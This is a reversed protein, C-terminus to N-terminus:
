RVPRFTALVQRGLPTTVDTVEVLLGLDSYEVTMDIDETGPVNARRRVVRHGNLEDPGLPPGVGVREDPPRRENDALSFVIIAEVRGVAHAPCPRKRDGDDIGLGELGLYVAHEDVVGWCAVAPDADFDYVPWDAPVEFRLLDRYTVAKWGPRSGEGIRNPPATTAPGTDTATTSPPPATTAPVGADGEAGVVVAGRGAPRAAVVGAVVALAAVLAAWVVVRGLPWRPATEDAM